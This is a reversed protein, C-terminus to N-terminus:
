CLYVWWLWLVESLVTGFFGNVLLFMLQHKTPLEFIEWDTYHLAFFLPWLLIMNFLGVFGPIYKATNYLQFAVYIKRIAFILVLRFIFSHGNQKWSWCKEESFRSVHLLFFCETTVTYYRVTNAFQNINRVLQSAGSIFISYSFYKPMATEVNWNIWM